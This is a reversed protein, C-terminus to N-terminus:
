LGWLDTIRAFGSSGDRHKVKVWGDKPAEQWQLVGDRAVSFVPQGDASAQR